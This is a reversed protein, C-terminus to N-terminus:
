KGVTVGDVPVMVRHVIEITEFKSGCARCQRIRDVRGRDIAMNGPLVLTRSNCLPCLNARTIQIPGYFSYVKMGGFAERTEFGADCYDCKRYRVVFLTHRQGTAPTRMGHGCQLCKM